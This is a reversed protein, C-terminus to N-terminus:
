QYIPMDLTVDCASSADGGELVENALKYIEEVQAEVARLMHKATISEIPFLEYQSIIAEELSSFASSRFSPMAAYEDTAAGISDVIAEALENKTGIDFNMYLYPGHAMYHQFWQKATHDPLHQVEPQSLKFTEHTCGIQDLNYRLQQWTKNSYQMAKKIQPIARMGLTQEDAAGIAVDQVTTFKIIKRMHFLIGWM